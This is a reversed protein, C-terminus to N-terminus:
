KKRSLTKNIQRAIEKHSEVPVYKRWEDGFIDPFINIGKFYLSVADSFLYNDNFYKSLKTLNKASYSQKFGNKIKIPLKNVLSDNLNCIDKATIFIVKLYLGLYYEDNIFMKPHSKCSAVFKFVESWAHALHTKPFEKHSALIKLTRPHILRM